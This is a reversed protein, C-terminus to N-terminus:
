VVEGSVKARHADIADQIRAVAWRKDIQVGLTEAQQILEARQDEETQLRKTGAGNDVLTTSAPAPAEPPVPDAIDLVARREEESNVCVAQQLFTGPRRPDPDPTKGGDNSGPYVMMPFEHFEYDPWETHEYRPHERKAM